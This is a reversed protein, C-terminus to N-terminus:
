YKTMKFIDVVFSKCITESM